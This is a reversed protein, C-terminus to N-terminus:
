CTPGRPPAPFSTVTLLPSRSGGVGALPPLSLARVLNAVVKQANLRGVFLVWGDRDDFSAM